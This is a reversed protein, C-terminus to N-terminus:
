ATGGLRTKAAEAALLEASCRDCFARGTRLHYHVQQGPQLEGQCGDCLTGVDLRLTGYGELPLEVGFRKKPIPASKVIQPRFAEEVRRWEAILDATLGYRRLAGEMLAERYDFLEDSIVMWHHANRPRDGFYVKEGTFVECLFAYQKEIVWQKTVGAFFPALREDVFVRDYFDHLIRTLGKGDELAAWMRPNPALDGRRRRHEETV